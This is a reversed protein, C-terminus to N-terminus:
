NPSPAGSLLSISDNTVQIPLEALDSAKLDVLATGDWAKGSVFHTSLIDMVKDLADLNEKASTDTSDLKFNALARTERFSLANYLIFAGSWGEGFSSLDLKKEVPFAM